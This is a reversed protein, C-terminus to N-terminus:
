IFGIFGLSSLVQTTGLFLQVRGIILTAADEFLFLFGLGQCRFSQVYGLRYCTVRKTSAM